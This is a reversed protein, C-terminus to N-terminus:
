ALRPNIAGSKLLTIAIQAFKPRANSLINIGKSLLGRLLASELKSSGVKRHLVTRGKGKRPKRRGERDCSSVKIFRACRGM